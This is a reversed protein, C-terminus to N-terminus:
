ELLILFVLYQGLGCYQVEDESDSDVNNSTGNHDKSGDNDVRNQRSGDTPTAEESQQGVSLCGPRELETTSDEM